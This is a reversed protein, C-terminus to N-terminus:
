QMDEDKEMQMDGLIKSIQRVKSSEMLRVFSVISFTTLPTRYEELCALDM